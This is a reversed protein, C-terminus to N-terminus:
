APEFYKIDFINAKREEDWVAKVRMGNKVKKRVLEFDGLDFGGLLHLFDVNAGDLRILASIFPPEVPQGYYRYNTLCWATLTGEHSVEVWEETDVFCRPCFSRAPVLIRGCKPCKTGFIKKSLLGDLFRTWIPGYALEYPLNVSTKITRFEKAM